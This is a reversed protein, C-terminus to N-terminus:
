RLGYKERISLPRYIAMIRKIVNKDTHWGYISDVFRVKTDYWRFCIDPIPKNADRIYVVLGDNCQLLGIYWDDGFYFYILTCVSYRNKIDYVYDLNHDEVFEIVSKYDM